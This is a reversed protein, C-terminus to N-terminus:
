VTCPTVVLRIYLGNPRIAFITKKNNVDAVAM